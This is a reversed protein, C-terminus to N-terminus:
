AVFPDPWLEAREAGRQCGNGWGCLSAEDDDLGRRDAPSRRWTAIPGGLRDLIEHQRQTGAPLTVSAARSTRSSRGLRALVDRMDRSENFVMVVGTLPLGAACIM